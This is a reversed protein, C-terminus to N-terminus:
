DYEITIPISGSYNGRPQNPAVSLSAGVSLTMSGGALAAPSPPYISFDTLAMSNAGSTLVVTGRPPLSVVVINSANAQNDDRLLFDASSAASPLVFVGGTVARAGGPAVSVTGGTGAVFKGFALPHINSVALQACAFGHALLAALGTAFTLWTKVTLSV